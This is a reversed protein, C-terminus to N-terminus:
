APKPLLNRRQRLLPEARLAVKDAQAHDVCNARWQFVFCVLTLHWDSAFAKIPFIIYYLNSARVFSAKESIQVGGKMSLLPITPSTTSHFRTKALDM